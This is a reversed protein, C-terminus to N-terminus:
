LALIGTIAYHLNNTELLPKFLLWRMYILIIEKKKMTRQLKSYEALKVDFSM